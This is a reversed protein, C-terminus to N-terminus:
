FLLALAQGQQPCLHHEPSYSQPRYSCELASGLASRFVRQNRAKIQLWVLVGSEPSDPTETERVRAPRSVVRAMLIRSSGKPLTYAAGALLSLKFSLVSANSFEVVRAFVDHRREITRNISENM